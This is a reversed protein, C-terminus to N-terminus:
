DATSLHTNQDIWELVALVPYLIQGKDKIFPLGGGVVRDRRLSAISRLGMQQIQAETWVIPLKEVELLVKFEDRRQESLSM